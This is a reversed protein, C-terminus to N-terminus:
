PVDIVIVLGLSVVTLRFGLSRREIFVDINGGGAPNTGHMGSIANPM